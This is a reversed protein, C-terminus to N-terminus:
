VVGGDRVCYREDAGCYREDAARYREDAAIGGVGWCMGIGSDIGSTARFIGSTPQFCNGDRKIGFNAM